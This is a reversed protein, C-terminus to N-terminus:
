VACFQVRVEKLSFPLLLMVTRGFCSRWGYGRSASARPRPTESWRLRHRLLRPPLPLGRLARQSSNLRVATPARATPTANTSHSLGARHLRACGHQQRRERRAKRGGAIMIAGGSRDARSSSSWNLRVRREAQKRGISLKSLESGARTAPHRPVKIATVAADETSSSGGIGVGDEVAAGTNATPRTSQQNASRGGDDWRVDTPPAATECRKTCGTLDHAPTECSLAASSRKPKSPSRRSMTISAVLEGFPACAKRVCRCSGRMASMEHEISAPLLLILRFAAPTNSSTTGRCGAAFAGRTRTRTHSSSASVASSMPSAGALHSERKRPM